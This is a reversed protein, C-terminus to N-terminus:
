IKPSYCFEQLIRHNNSTMAGEITARSFKKMVKQTEKSGLATECTNVFISFMDYGLETDTDKCMWYTIYNEIPDNSSWMEQAHTLLLHENERIAELNGCAVFKFINNM